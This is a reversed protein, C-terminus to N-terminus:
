NDFFQKSWILQTKLYFKSFCVIFKLLIELLKKEWDKLPIKGEVM